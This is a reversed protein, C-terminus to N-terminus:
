AFAEVRALLARAWRLTAPALAPDVPFEVVSDEAARLIMQARNIEALPVSFADNVPEVQAPSLCGKGTFGARLAFDIEIDFYDKGRYCPADWCPIGDARAATAIQLQAHELLADQRESIGAAALFGHRGFALADVELERVRALGAPSEVLACVRVELAEDQRDPDGEFGLARDLIRLDDPDEVKPLWLWGSFGANRLMSIDAGFHPSEVGNVRVALRCLFLGPGPTPTAHRLVARRVNLRAEEKQDEPVSDELDLLVMDAGEVLARDIMGPKSGPVCLISRIM